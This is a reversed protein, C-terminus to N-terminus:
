ELVTKRLDSLKQPPSDQLAPSVSQPFSNGSLRCSFFESVPVLYIECSNTTKVAMHDSSCGFFRRVPYLDEARIKLREETGIHWHMDRELTFFVAPPRGQSCTPYHYQYTGFLDRSIDEFAGAAAHQFLCVNGFDLRIGHLMEKVNQSSVILEITGQRKMQMLYALLEDGEEPFSVEDLIVRLRPTQMLVAYLEEKLYANLLRQRSSIQYFAMVAGDQHWGTQFSYKTDSKPFSVNEFTEEMRWVIRRFMIGAEHNGLINDVTVNSMGMQVAFSAITDDDEKLIASLAPLSVPYKAAVIDIVAYAYLSVKDMIAGCGMEEGAATMLRNIQQASMGYMPHYNKSSPASIELRSIYGRSQRDKLAELLKRRGSLLIMPLGDGRSAYDCVMDALMSINGANSGSMLLHGEINRFFMHYEVRGPTVGRDMNARNCEKLIRGNVGM